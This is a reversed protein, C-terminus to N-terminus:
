MTIRFRLIAEVIDNIMIHKSGVTYIHWCAIALSDSGGPKVQFSALLFFLILYLLLFLFLTLTMRYIIFVGAKTQLQQKVTAPTSCGRADIEINWRYLQPSHAINSKYWKVTSRNKM